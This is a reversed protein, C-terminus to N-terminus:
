ERREGTTQMSRRNDERDGGIRTEMRSRIGKKNVRMGGEMSREESEERAKEGRM